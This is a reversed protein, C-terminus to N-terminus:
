AAAGTGDHEVGAKVQNFERKWETLCTQNLWIHDNALLYWGHLSQSARADRIEVGDIVMPRKGSFVTKIVSADETLHLSYGARGVFEELTKADVLIPVVVELTRGDFDCLAKIDLERGSPQGPTKPPALLNKLVTLHANIKEKPAGSSQIEKKAEGLRREVEEKQSKLEVIMDDKTKSVITKYNDLDSPLESLLNKYIGGIKETEEIRKSMTGIVDRQAAVVGELGTIKASLARFLYYIFAGLGVTEAFTALLSDM